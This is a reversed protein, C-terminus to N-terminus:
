VCGWIQGQHAQVHLFNPQMEQTFKPAPLVAEAFVNWVRGWIMSQLMFDQHFRLKLRPRACKKVKGCEVLVFTFFIM